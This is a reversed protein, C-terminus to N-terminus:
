KLYNHFTDSRLGLRICELPIIDNCSINGLNANQGLKNIFWVQQSKKPTEWIIHSHDITEIIEDVIKNKINFNNDFIGINGSERAETIVKWSGSKIEEEIWKKWNKTNDQQNEYKSGVESVVKFNKSLDNIYECKKENEINISGDSVELMELGLHDLFRKYDDLQKRIVFAEFLTGGLYVLINNQKYIKIKKKIEPTIISTGFGLKVIDTYKSNVSIFEKAQNISLGKDMMMTIGKSRPKKTREPLNKLIDLM